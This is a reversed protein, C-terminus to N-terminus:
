LAIAKSFLLIDLWQYAIPSWEGKNENFKKKSIHLENIVIQFGNLTSRLQEIVTGPLSTGELLVIQISLNRENVSYSIDLIDDLAEIMFINILAYKMEIYQIDYKM